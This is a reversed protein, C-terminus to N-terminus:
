LRSSLRQATMAQTAQELATRAWTWCWPTSKMQPCRARIAPVPLRAARDRASHAKSVSAGSNATCAGGGFINSM